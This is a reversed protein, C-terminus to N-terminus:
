EEPKKEEKSLKKITSYEFKGLYWGEKEELRVKDMDKLAISDSKFTGGNAEGDTDNFYVKQDAVGGGTLEETKFEGKEDTYVTDAYVPANNWSKRVIVQIGKLPEETDSTVRGKVQFKTTPSGYELRGIDENWDKGCSTFGLLVLVGSLLRQVTMKKRTNM